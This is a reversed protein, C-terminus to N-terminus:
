RNTFVHYALIIYQVLIDNFISTLKDIFFYKKNKLTSSNPKIQPHFLVVDNKTTLFIQRIKPVFYFRM